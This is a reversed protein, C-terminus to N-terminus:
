HSALPAGPSRRDLQSLYYKAIAVAVRRRLQGEAIRQGDLDTVAHVPADLRGLEADGQMAAIVHEDVAGACPRVTKLNVREGSVPSDPEGEVLQVQHVANVADAHADESGVPTPLPRDVRVMLRM